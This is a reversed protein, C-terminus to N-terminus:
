KELLEAPTEPQHAFICNTGVFLAALAMLASNAIIALRLKM